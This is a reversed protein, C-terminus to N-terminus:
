GGPDPAPSPVPGGGWSRVVRSGLEPRVVTWRSRGGQRRRVGSLSGIVLKRVLRRRRPPRVPTATAAMTSVVAAQPPVVRPSSLELLLPLSALAEAFGSAFIGEPRFIAM